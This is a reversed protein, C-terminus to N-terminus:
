AAYVADWLLCIMVQSSSADGARRQRPAGGDSAVPGRGRHVQRQEVRKLQVRLQRLHDLLLENGRAIGEDAGEIASSVQKSRATSICADHDPVKLRIANCSRKLPVFPSHGRYTIRSATM